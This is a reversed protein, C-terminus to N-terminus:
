VRSLVERIDRLSAPEYKLKYVPEEGVKTDKLAVYTRGNILKISMITIAQGKPLNSSLYFDGQKVPEIMSAMDRFIILTKEDGPADEISVMLKDEMPVNYFRDCNIWGMQNVTYFYYNLSKADTAGIEEYAAEFAKLKEKRLAEWAAMKERYIVLQQQYFERQKGKEAKYFDSEYFDKYQDLVKNQWDAHISHFDIKAQEYKALQQDYEVLREQYRIMKLQYEEMKAKFIENEKAEIKAKGMLLRKVLGPQYKIQERKPEFPEYPARPEVPPQPEDRLDAEFPVAFHRNAPMKPRRPMKLSVKRASEFPQGTPVWDVPRNEAVANGMFLQMGDKTNVTPMAIAIEKDSNLVLPQGNASAELRLMGGTELLETGSMTALGEALMDQYSYAERLSLAIEGEPAGSGDAFQFSNSEVWLTTGGEATIKVAKDAQFTFIEQKGKGLHSLVEDLSNLAGTATVLIDVRRNAQRTQDDTNPFAPNHEGFSRVTTKEIQLGRKELFQRVSAARRDALGENYVESGRDDTHAEILLIYDNLQQLYDAITTLETSAEASIDAEATAFYVSFQKKEQSFLQFGSLLACCLLFYRM